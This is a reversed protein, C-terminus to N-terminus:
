VAKRGKFCVVRVIDYVQVEEDNFPFKGCVPCRIGDVREEDELEYGCWNADTEFWVAGTEDDEVCIYPLDENDSGDYMFKRISVRDIKSGCEECIM